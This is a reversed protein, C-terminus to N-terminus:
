QTSEIFTKIEEVTFPWCLSITDSLKLVPISLGYTAMLEDDEIIDIYQVAINSYTQAARIILESAHDCLHCGETGYLTLQIM